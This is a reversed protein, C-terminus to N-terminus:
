RRGHAATRAIGQQEFNLAAQAQKVTEIRQPNRYRSAQSCKAMLRAHGTGRCCPGSQPQGPGTDFRRDLSKQLQTRGKGADVHTMQTPRLAGDPREQLHSERCHTVTHPQRALAKGPSQPGPAQAFQILSKASLWFWLPAMHRGCAKRSLQFQRHFGSIGREQELAKLLKELPELLREFGALGTDAAHPAPKRMRIAPFRAQM